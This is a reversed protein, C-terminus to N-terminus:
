GNSSTQIKAAYKKKMEKVHFTFTAILNFSGLLVEHLSVFKRVFNNFIIYNTILHRCKKQLHRIQLHNKKKLISGDNRTQCTGNNVLIFDRRWFESIILKEEESFLYSDLENWKLFFDCYKIKDTSNLAVYREEQWCM